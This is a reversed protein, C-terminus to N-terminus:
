ETSIEIEVSSTPTFAFGNGGPHLEEPVGRERLYDLTSSKFQRSEKALKVSAESVDVKVGKGEDRRGRLVVDDNPVVLYYTREVDDPTFQAAIVKGSAVQPSVPEYGDELDDVDLDDDDSDDGAGILWSALHHFDSRSVEASIGVVTWSQVQDSLAFTVRLKTGDFVPFERIQHELSERDLGCVLIGRRTEFM